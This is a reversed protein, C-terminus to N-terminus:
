MVKCKVNQAPFPEGDISFVENNFTETGAPLQYTQIEAPVPGKRTPELKWESASIYQLASGRTMIGTRRNYYDGSQCNIMYKFLQSYSTESGLFTIGNMGDDLKHCPAAHLDGACWPVNMINM